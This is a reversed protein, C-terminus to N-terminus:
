FRLILRKVYAQSNHVSRFIKQVTDQRRSRALDPATGHMFAHVSDVLVPNYGKRTCAAPGAGGAADPRSVRRAASIRIVSDETTGVGRMASIKSVKWGERARGAIRIKSKKSFIKGRSFGPVDYQEPHSNSLEAKVTIAPLSYL